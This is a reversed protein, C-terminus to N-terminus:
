EETALLNAVYTTMDISDNVIGNDVLLQLTDLNVKRIRQNINTFCVPYLDKLPMGEFGIKLIVLVPNKQEKTVEQLLVLV